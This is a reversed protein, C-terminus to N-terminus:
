KFVIEFPIGDPDRFYFAYYKEGYDPYERPERTIKVDLTEVLAHLEDVQGREEVGIAIHDLGVNRVFLQKEDDREWKIYLPSGPIDYAIIKAEDSEHVSRRPVSLGDMLADYVKFSKEPDSVNLITHAIYTM